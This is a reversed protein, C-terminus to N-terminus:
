NAVACKRLFFSIVAKALQEFPRTRQLSDSVDRHRCATREADHPDLRNISRAVRAVPWWWPQAGDSGLKELREADRLLTASAERGTVVFRGLTHRDHVLRHRALIPWSDVCQALADADAPLPRLASSDDADYVVCTLTVPRTLRDLVLLRHAGIVDREGLSVRL